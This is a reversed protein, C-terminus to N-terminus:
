VQCHFGNFSLVLATIVLPPSYTTNKWSLLQPMDFSSSLKMPAHHIPNMSSHASANTSIGTRKVSGFGGEGWPLWERGGLSDEESSSLALVPWNGTKRSLQLMYLMIIVEFLTKVVLSSKREFEALFGWLWVGINYPVDYPSLYSECKQPTRNQTDSSTSRQFALESLGLGRHVYNHFLPPELSEIIQSRANVKRNPTKNWWNPFINNEINNRAERNIHNRKLIVLM